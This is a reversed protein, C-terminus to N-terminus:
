GPVRPRPWACGASPRRGPPSRRGRPGSARPGRDPRASAGCTRRHAVARVHPGAGRVPRVVRERALLVHDHADRRGIDGQRVRPVELLEPRLPAQLRAAALPRGGREAAADLHSRHERRAARRERVEGRLADGGRVMAHPDEGGHDRRPRHEARERLERPACREVQHARVVRGLHALHDALPLRPRRVVPLDGRPLRDTRPQRALDRRRPAGRATHVVEHMRLDHDGVALHQGPAVVQRVPALLVGLVHQVDAAARERLPESREHLADAARAIRRRAIRGASTVVDGM